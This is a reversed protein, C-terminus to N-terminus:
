LAWDGPLMRRRGEGRSLWRGDTANVLTFSEFGWGHKDLPIDAQLRNTSRPVLSVVPVFGVFPQMGSSIGTDNLERDGHGAQSEIQLQGRQAMSKRKAYDRDSM